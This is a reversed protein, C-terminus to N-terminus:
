LIGSVAVSVAVVVSVHVAALRLFAGREGALAQYGAAAAALVIAHRLAAHRCGAGDTLVAANGFSAVACPQALALEGIADAYREPCDVLDLATGLVRSRVDGSDGRGSARFGSKEDIWTGRLLVLRGDRRDKIRRVRPQRLARQLFPPYPVEDEARDHEEHRNAEERLLHM